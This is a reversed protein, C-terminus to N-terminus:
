FREGRNSPTRRGYSEEARDNSDRRRVVEGDFSGTNLFTEMEERTKDLVHTGLADPVDFDDMTTEDERGISYIEYTTQQDGAKGNREIEFVNSVLHPYRACLSSLKQGFKKGREWTEIRQTDLNFLPVFYKVSTMKGAACFPCDSVPAGYERLCNVYRKKGNEDEIQHVAFGEVDEIKDYLFRVKAVDKDNALRFYGGGGQGGYKEADDVNVRM